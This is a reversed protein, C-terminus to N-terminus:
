DYVAFNIVKSCKSFLFHMSDVRSRGWLAMGVLLGTNEKVCLVSSLVGVIWVVYFYFIGM